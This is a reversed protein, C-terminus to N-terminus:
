ICSSKAVAGLNLRYKVKFSYYSSREFTKSFICDTDEYRESQCVEKMKKTCLSVMDMCLIPFDVQKHLSHDKPELKTHFVYM